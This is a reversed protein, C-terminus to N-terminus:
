FGYMKTGLRQLYSHGDTTNTGNPLCNTYIYMMIFLDDKFYTGIRYKNQLFVLKTPAITIQDGM